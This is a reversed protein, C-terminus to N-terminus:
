MIFILILNVSLCGFDRTKFKKECEDWPRACSIIQTCFPEAADNTMQWDNVFLFVTPPPFYPFCAETASGNILRQDRRTATDGRPCDESCVTLVNHNETKCRHSSQKSAESTTHSSLLVDPYKSILKQLIFREWTSLFQLTLRENIIRLLRFIERKRFIYTLM